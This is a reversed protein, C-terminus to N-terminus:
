TQFNKLPVKGICFEDLLGHVYADCHGKVNNFEKTADKGNYKELIKKGGPHNNAYKTVDFMYSDIIVIIKNNSM